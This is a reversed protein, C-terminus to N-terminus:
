PEIGWAQMVLRFPEPDGERASVARLRPEILRGYEEITWRNLVQYSERRRPQGDPGPTNDAPLEWEVELVERGGGPLEPLRHLVGLPAGLEMEDPDELWRLVYEITGAFIADPVFQWAAIKATGSQDRWWGDLLDPLRRDGMMLLGAFLGGSRVPQDGFGTSQKLVLDVSSLFPDGGVTPALLAMDLIASALVAGDTENAIVVTLGSLSGVDGSPLSDAVGRVIALREQWPLRLCAVEWAETVVALNRMCGAPDAACDVLVSLMLDALMPPSETPWRRPELLLRDLTPLAQDALTPPDPAPRSTPQNVRWLTDALERRDLPQWASEDWFPSSSFRAEAFELENPVKLFRSFIAGLVSRPLADYVADTLPQGFQEIAAEIGAWTREADHIIIRDAAPDHPPRGQLPANFGDMEMDWVHATAALGAVVAAHLPLLRPPPQLSEAAAAVEHAKGQARFLTRLARAFVPAHLDLREHAIELTVAPNSGLGARALGRGMEGARDPDMLVHASARRTAGLYVLPRLVAGVERLYDREPASLHDSM